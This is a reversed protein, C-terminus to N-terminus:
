KNQKILYDIKHIATDLKKENKKILNELEKFRKNMPKIVYEEIYGQNVRLGM